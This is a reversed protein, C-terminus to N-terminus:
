ASAGGGLQGAATAELASTILKGHLARTTQEVLESELLYTFSHDSAVHRGNTSGVQRGLQEFSRRHDEANGLGWGIVSVSGFGTDVEVRSGFEEFLTEQLGEADAVSEPKVLMEHRENVAGGLYVDPSGGAELVAKQLEECPEMAVRILERHCAVGRIELESGREAELGTVITGPANSFTSAARLPVGLDRAYKVADTKLVSAGHRALELMEEYDIVELPQAEEVIRPDATFVGDVDSFIECREANLAAALAVATTDSGGRGLTTTEGEPSSGQFGAVVVVKGQELEEIIRTPEVRDIEANFHRNCTIIGSQAGTLSIADQGLEQITLTLLATSIREGSSLLMDLERRDPSRSLGQAVQLLEETTDGMASVVVVIGYGSQRSRVIRRAVHQLKHQDAVSSGGYKQVKIKM